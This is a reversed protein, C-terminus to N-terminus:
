EIETYLKWHLRLMHCSEFTCHLSLKGVSGSTGIRFRQLGLKLASRSTNGLTSLGSIVFGFVGGSM